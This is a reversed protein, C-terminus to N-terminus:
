SFKNEFNKQDYSPNYNEKDPFIWIQLLHLKEEKSFNYESHRVGTGASMRQVDGAKVKATTGLSDKHELAGEVVYTIIEMDRHAHAPFGAGAAVHDENIVRLVSFGMQQSDHYDAFSFTHASQLWGHNAQGRDASKRVKIM